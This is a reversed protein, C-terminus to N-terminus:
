LIRATSIWLAGLLETCIWSDIEAKLCESSSIMDQSQDPAITQMSCQSAATLHCRGDLPKRGRLISNAASDATQPVLTVVGAAIDILQALLAISSRLGFKTSFWIRWHLMLLTRRPIINEPTASSGVLNPGAHDSEWQGGFKCRETSKSSGLDKSVPCRMAAALLATPGLRNYSPTFIEARGSFAGIPFLIAKNRLVISSSSLAFLSYAM